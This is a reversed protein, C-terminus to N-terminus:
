ASAVSFSLIGQPCLANKQERSLTLNFITASPNIFVGFASFATNLAELVDSDTIINVGTEMPAGIIIGSCYLSLTTNTLVPDVLIFSITVSDCCQYGVIEQWIGVKPKKKRLILSAPVVRGSGDFRVYARLSRDLAM